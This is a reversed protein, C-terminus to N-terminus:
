VRGELKARLEREVGIKAKVFSPLLWPRAAMKSTGFELMPGYAVATGVRYTNEGEPVMKVSGALRGTDSAPYQGPASATHTRNPNYKRYTRGSKGGAMIGAVANAQTDTAVDFITEAIIQDGAVGLNRLQGLLTNLGDMEVKINVM